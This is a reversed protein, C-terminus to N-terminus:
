AQTRENLVKLPFASSARTKKNDIPLGALELSGAFGLSEKTEMMNIGKLFITPQYYVQCRIVICADDIM